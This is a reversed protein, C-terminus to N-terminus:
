CFSCKFTCCRGTRHCFNILRYAKQLSLVYNKVHTDPVSISKLLLIIKIFSINRSRHYIFYLTYYGCLDSSYSQFSILSYTFLSTLGYYSPPMGFTDFFELPGENPGFISLWHQGPKNNPDTNFGVAFPRQMHHLDPLQDRTFVGLWHVPSRYARISAISENPTVDSLM